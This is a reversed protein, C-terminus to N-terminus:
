RRGAAWRMSTTSRDRPTTRFALPARQVLVNHHDTSCRMFAALGPVTDSVMFGLGKTRALSGAVWEIDDPDDAGARLEVLRRRPAPV